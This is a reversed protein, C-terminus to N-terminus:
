RLAVCQLRHCWQRLLRLGRCASPIANIATDASVLQLIQIPCSFFGCFRAIGIKGVTHIMLSVCTFLLTFHLSRGVGKPATFLPNSCYFVVCGWCDFHELISKSLCSLFYPEFINKQNSDLQHISTHISKRNGMWKDEVEKDQEPIPAPALGLPWWVLAFVCGCGVLWLPM